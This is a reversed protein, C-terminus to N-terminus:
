ALWHACAATGLPLAGQVIVSLLAFALIVKTRHIQAVEWEHQQVQKRAASARGQQDKRQKGLELVHARMLRANRFRLALSLGTTVAGFCLITVYAAKYGDNPVTVEGSLRVYAFADTIVDALGM